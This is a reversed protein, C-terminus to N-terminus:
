TLSGLVKSPAECNRFEKLRWLGCMSDSSSNFDEPNCLVISNCLAKWAQQMYWRLSLEAKLFQQVIFPCQVWHEAVVGFELSGVYALFM